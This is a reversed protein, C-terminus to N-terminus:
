RQKMVTHQNIQNNGAYIHYIFNIYAGRHSQNSDTTYPLETASAENNTTAVLAKPHPHKTRTENNANSLSTELKAIM